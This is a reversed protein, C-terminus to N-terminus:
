KVFNIKINNLFLREVSKDFQRVVHETQHYEYLERHACEDNAHASVRERLRTKGTSLECEYRDIQCAHEHLNKEHTPVSVFNNNFHTQKSILFCIKRGRYTLSRSKRDIASYLHQGHPRRFPNTM